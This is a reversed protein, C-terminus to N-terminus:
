RAAVSGAAPPDGYIFQLMRYVSPAASQLEAATMGARRPARQHVGFWVETVEAFFESHGVQDGHDHGLRHLAEEHQVGFEARGADSLGLDYIAHGLEHVLLRDTHSGNVDWEGTATLNEAGVFVFHIDYVTHSMGRPERPVRPTYDALRADYSRQLSVIERQATVLDLAQMYAREIFPEIPENAPVVYVRVQSEVRARPEAGLSQLLLRKIAAVKATADAPQAVGDVAHAATALLLLTAALPALTRM